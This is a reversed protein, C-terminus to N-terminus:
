VQSYNWISVRTHWWLSHWWNWGCSWGTASASCSRLTAPSAACKCNRCRMERQRRWRRGGVGSYCGASYHWTLSICLLQWDYEYPQAGALSHSESRTYRAHVTGHSSSIIWQATPWICSAAVARRIQVSLAEYSRVFNKPLPCWGTTDDVKNPGVFEANFRCLLIECLM